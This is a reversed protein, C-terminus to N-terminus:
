EQRHFFDPGKLWSPAHPHGQLFSYSAKLGNLYYERTERNYTDAVQGADVEKRRWQNILLAVKFADVIALEFGRNSMPDNRRVADGIMFYGPGAPRSVIRWTMDAGRAPGVAELGAKVFEPPLWDRELAKKEFSMRTFQYLGPNQVRSIWTWGSPEDYILPREHCDPCHGRAWNYSGYLSKSYYDIPVGLKRALWHGAGAADVVFSATLEGQDSKLGRVQGDELLVDRILSPQTVSVGLAQARELLMPELHERTITFGDNATGGLHSVIETPANWRLAHASYPLADRMLRDRSIGLMDFYVGIGAPLTDGHFARPFQVAEFVRAKFGMQGALIALTLGAPGGGVILADTASNAVLEVEQIRENATALVLGRTEGPM